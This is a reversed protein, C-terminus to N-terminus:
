LGPNSGKILGAQIAYRSLTGLTDFIEAVKWEAQTVEMTATDPLPLRARGGDVTVLIFKHLLSAGYYLNYYYGSASPDAFGNAWPERFDQAQVDEGDLTSVIRLNVDDKFFAVQAHGDVHIWETAPASLFTQVISSYNM